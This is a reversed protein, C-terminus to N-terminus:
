ALLSTTISSVINCPYDRLGHSHLWKQITSIEPSFGPAEATAAGSSRLGQAFFLWADCGFTVHIV